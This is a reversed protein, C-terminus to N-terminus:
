EVEVTLGSLIMAISLSGAYSLTWKLICIVMFVAITCFRRGSFEPLEQRSQLLPGGGAGKIHEIM